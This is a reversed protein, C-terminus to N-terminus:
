LTWLNEQGDPRNEPQEWDMGNQEVWEGIDALRDLETDEQGPESDFNTANHRQVESRGTEKHYVRVVTDLTGEDLLVLGYHETEYDYTM